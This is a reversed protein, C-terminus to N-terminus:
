IADNYARFKAYDHTLFANIKGAAFAAVSTTQLVGLFREYLKGQPLSAALIVTGPTFVGQAVTQANSSLHYTATGDVAIAAQADSALHFAIAGTASAFLTTVVLVFYVDEGPGIDRTISLDIVDGLLYSAAGGTNIALDDAFEAREDLIM